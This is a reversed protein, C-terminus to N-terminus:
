IIFPALWNSVFEAHFLYHLMLGSAIIILSIIGHRILAKIFKRRSLFFIILFLGISILSSYFWLDTLCATVGFAIRILSMMLVGPSCFLIFSVATLVILPLDM